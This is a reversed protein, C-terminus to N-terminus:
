ISSYSESVQYTTSRDPQNAISHGPPPGSSRYPALADALEIPVPCAVLRGDSLRMCRIMQNGVAFSMWANDRRVRYDFALMIRNAAVEALVMRLEIEDFAQIEQFYDCDVHTTVLRLDAEIEALVGPANDRLFM